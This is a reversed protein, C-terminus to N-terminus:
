DDDHAFMRVIPPVDPYGVGAQDATTLIAYCIGVQFAYHYATQDLTGASIAYRIKTSAPAMFMCHAPDVGITITSADNADWMKLYVPVTNVTNDIEVLNVSIKDHACWRVVGGPTTGDDLVYLPNEFRWPPKSSHAQHSM